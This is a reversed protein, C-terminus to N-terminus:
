LQGLSRRRGETLDRQEQVKRASRKDDRHAFALALDQSPNVIAKRMDDVDRWIEGVLKREKPLFNSFWARISSKDKLMFFVLIPLLIMYVFLVVLNKFYGVASKLVADPEIGSLAQEFIQAIAGPAREANAGEQGLKKDPATHVIM